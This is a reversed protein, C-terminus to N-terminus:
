KEMLWEALRREAWRIGGAGDRGLFGVHGGRPLIRVTVHPPPALEEFPEVAIFPDDRATLILTPVTIRGILPAASAQRYYDPADCFGSRPATYLDDFMRLTMRRPFRLPPLDPHHRQRKEADAVLEAVFHIEYLRNRRHALLASCRVLDIPPAIVGIRTLGPVPHEASEGALKLSM